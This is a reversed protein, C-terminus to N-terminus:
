ALAIAEFELLTNNEPFRARAERVRRLEERRNGLDHLVWISGVWGGGSKAWWSQDRDLTSWVQAAERTRGLRFLLTAVTTPWISSPALRAASRAAALSKELDDSLSARYYDLAYRDVESLEARRRDLIDVIPRLKPTSAVAAAEQILPELFTTD